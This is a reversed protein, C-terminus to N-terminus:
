SIGLGNLGDGRAFLFEHRDNYSCQILVQLFICLVLGVELLLQVVEARGEGSQFHRGIFITGAMMVIIILATNTIFGSLRLSSATLYAAEKGEAPLLTSSLRANPYSPV